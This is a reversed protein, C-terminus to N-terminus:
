SAERKRAPLRWLQELVDIDRTVIVTHFVDRTTLYAPVVIPPLPRENPRM